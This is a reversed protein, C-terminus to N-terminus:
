AQRSLTVPATSDTQRCVLVRLAMGQRREREIVAERGSTRRGAARFVDELCLVGVTTVSEARVSGAVVGKTAQAAERCSRSGRELVVRLLMVRLNKWGEADTLLRPAEAHAEGKIRWFTKGREGGREGGKRQM